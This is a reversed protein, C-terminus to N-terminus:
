KAAIGALERVKRALVESTFEDVQGGITVRVRHPTSGRELGLQLREAPLFALVKSMAPGDQGAVILPCDNEECWSVAATVIGGITAVGWFHDLLVVDPKEEPPIWAPFAALAPELYHAQCQKRILTLLHSKGTAAGGTIVTTNM